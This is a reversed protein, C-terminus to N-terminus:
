NTHIQAFYDLSIDLGNIQVAIRTPAAFGNPIMGAASAGQASCSVMPSRHDLILTFPGTAIGGVFPTTAVGQYTVSDFTYTLKVRASATDGLIECYYHAAGADYMAITIQGTPTIANIRGALIFFDQNATGPRDAFYFGTRTDFSIADNGFSYTVNGNFAWGHDAAVFPDFFSITDFGATPDCGDGVGDGDSNPQEVDPKYPCLDCDDAIGDKDEDHGGICVVTASDGRTDALGDFGVRGCGLLLLLLLLLWRMLNAQIQVFLMASAVSAIEHACSDLRTWRIAIARSGPEDGPRPPCDLSPKLDRPCPGFRM